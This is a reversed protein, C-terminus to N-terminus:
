KLTSLIDDIIVTPKIIIDSQHQSIFSFDNDTNGLIIIQVMGSKTITEVYGYCLFREFGNDNIYFSVAARHSLYPNPRCLCKGDRCKFLEIAPHSIDKSDLYLKLALWAFLIILLLSIAFVAYPVSNTPQFVYLLVAPVLALAFSLYNGTDKFFKKM